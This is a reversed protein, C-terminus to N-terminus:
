PEPIARGEGQVERDMSIGAATSVIRIEAALDASL